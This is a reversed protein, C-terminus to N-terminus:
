CGKDATPNGSRSAFNKDKVLTASSIMLTKSQANVPEGVRCSVRPNQGQRLSRRDSSHWNSLTGTCGGDRWRWSAM